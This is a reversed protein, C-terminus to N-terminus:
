PHPLFDEYEFLSPDVEEPEVAHPRICGVYYQDHALGRRLCEGILTEPKPALGVQEDGYFAVWKGRLRPRALLGPLTRRFAEKSRRLGEPVEVPHNDAPGRFAREAEPPGIVERLRRYVGEKVLIYTERTDPDDIRVPEDGAQEVLRRQEPSLGITSM